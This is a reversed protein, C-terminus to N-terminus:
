NCDTCPLSYIVGMQDEVDLRDKSKGMVSGKWKSATPITKIGIPKLIRSVADSIGEVYPVRAIAAPEEGKSQQDASSKM